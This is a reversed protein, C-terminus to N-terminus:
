SPSSRIRKDSFIRRRQLYYLTLSFILILSYHAPEPVFRGTLRLHDFAIDEDGDNLKEITVRITLWDGSDITREHYSFSEDIIAGDGIGDFDSDVQPAHNYFERDLHQAELAFLAQFDAYDVQADIRFSSTSDWDENNDQAVDEAVYWSLALEQYNQIAINSWTLTVRLITANNANIDQAGYFGNGQFNTYNLHTPLNDTDIRGYYDYSGLNTLDDPHSASYAIETTEFDELFITDRAPVSAILLLHPCIWRNLFARM